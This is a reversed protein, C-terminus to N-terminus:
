CTWGGSSHSGHPVNTHPTLSSVHTGLKTANHLYSNTHEAVESYPTSAHSSHEAEANSDQASMVMAIVSLSLGMKVINKTDIRGEESLLFNKINKGTRPTKKAM